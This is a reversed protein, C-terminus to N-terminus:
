RNSNGRRNSSFENNDQWAVTDPQDFRIGYGQNGSVVNRELVPRSDSLVLGNELNEQIKNGVISPSAKQLSIGDNRNRKIENGRVKSDTKVGKLVIGFLNGEISNGPGIEVRSNEVSIGKKWHNRVVNGAITVESDNEVSIGDNLGDYISNESILVQRCQHLIVGGGKVEELGQDGSAGQKRKRKWYGSIECRSMQLERCFEMQVTYFPEKPSNAIVCGLIKLNSSGTVMLATHEGSKLKNQGSEGEPEALSIGECRHLSLCVDEESSIENAVFTFSRCDELFMAARTTQIRNKELRSEAVSGKPDPSGCRAVHVGLSAEIDNGSLLVQGASLIELAFKELSRATRLPCGRMSFERVDIARVCGTITCGDIELRGNGKEAWIADSPSELTVNRLSVGECATIKLAAQESSNGQIRVGEIRFDACDDLILVLADSSKVTAASDGPEARVTVNKKGKLYL